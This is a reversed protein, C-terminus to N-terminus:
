KKIIVIAKKGSYEKPLTIHSANGFPKIEKDTVADPLIRRMTKYANKIDEQLKELNVRIEKRSLEIRNSKKKVKPKPM